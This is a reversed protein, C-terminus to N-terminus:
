VVAGDPCEGAWLVLLVLGVSAVKGVGGWGPGVAKRIEQVVILVVGGVFKREGLAFSRPGLTLLAGRTAAGDKMEVVAKAIHSSPFCEGAAVPTTQGYAASSMLVTAVFMVTRM